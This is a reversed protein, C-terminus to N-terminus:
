GTCLRLVLVLNKCPGRHVSQLCAQFPSKRNGYKQLICAHLRRESTTLMVRVYEFVRTALVSWHSRRPHARSRCRRRFSRWIPRMWPRTESYATSALYNAPRFGDDDGLDRRHKARVPTTGFAHEDGDRLTEGGCRAALKYLMYASSMTTHTRLLLKQSEADDSWPARYGVSGFGGHEHVRSVQEYFDRPPNLSAVPDSLYFTDQLDRAPHQQLVFLADFCWFGSEVFSSTPM